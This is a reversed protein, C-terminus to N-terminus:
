ARVVNKGFHERIRGHRRYKPLNPILSSNAHCIACALADAADPQPEHPLKLLRQVMYQVQSKQAKGHGVVSQKIQNATYERVPLGALVLATIAAGRAQGLLLTSQPNVNVFVQEIAAEIPTYQRIIDAIDRAIMGLRAALEDGETRISGSAVYVSRNDAFDIVGFGTVRLGPDLGLIRRVASM